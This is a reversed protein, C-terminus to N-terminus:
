LALVELERELLAIAPLFRSRQLGDRYLENPPVNSTIVLLVGYRLLAEFLGALLMADAIDSVFLEDLCLVRARASMSRAVLELPDRRANLQRLQSHVERMFHHFHSRRHARRPLAAAFFNM